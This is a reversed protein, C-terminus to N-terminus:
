PSGAERKAMVESRFFELPPQGAAIYEPTITDNDVVYLEWPEIGAARVAEWVKPLEKEDPLQGDPTCLLGGIYRQGVAAAAGAYHFVIWSLDDAVGAITWFEDSTIGNDLVSFRFTGPVKQPRVRYHRKCWVHRGDLTEVRFVPDYWMGDGKANPYFLQNQSPFKDYAENAGCAVIWSVDRKKGGKLVSTDDDLHGVLIANATEKTLPQGRFSTIPSVVPLKPISADCGFINHKQLICFSFDRLLDSEYSVITRYSAVQDRTDVATLKGLCERCTDDKVCDVICDGCKSVMSYLERANQVPGKEWTADISHKVWDVKSGSFENLFILMAFVFEDSSWKQFLDKMQIAMRRGTAAKTWPLFLSQFSPSKEDYPGVIVPFDKACDIAFQCRRNEQTKENRSRRDEFLKECFVLDSESSLGMAIVVDTELLQGPLHADDLPVPVISTDVLGDTFWYCKQALQSVVDVVNPSQVPASKGFNMVSKQQEESHPILFAATGIRPKSLTSEDDDITATAGNIVEDKISSSRTVIRTVYRERAPGGVNVIFGAGERVLLAIVVTYLGKM